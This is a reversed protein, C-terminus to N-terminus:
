KFNVGLEKFLEESNGRMSFEQIAADEADKSMKNAVLPNMKYKTYKGETRICEFVPYNCIKMNNLRRSILQKSSGTVDALDQLSMPNAKEELPRLPNNVLINTDKDLFPLLTVLWGTDGATNEQYVKRIGTLYQKTCKGRLKSPIRGKFFVNNNLVFCGVDEGEKKYTATELIGCVLAKQILAEAYSVKSLGLINQIEKPTSIPKSAVRSTWLIGDYRAYTSLFALRGIDAVSLSAMLPRISTDQSFSFERGDARKQWRNEKKAEHHHTLIGSSDRYRAIDEEGLKIMEGTEQVVGMIDTIPM